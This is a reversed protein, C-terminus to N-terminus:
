RLHACLKIGHDQHTFPLTTDHARQSSWALLAPQRNCPIFVEGFMYHQVRHKKINYRSLSGATSIAMLASGSHVVSVPVLRCIPDSRLPILINCASRCLSSQTTWKSKVVNCQLPM